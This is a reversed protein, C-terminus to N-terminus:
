GIHSLRFEEKHTQAFEILEVWKGEQVLAQPFDSFISGMMTAEKWQPKLYSISFFSTSLIPM